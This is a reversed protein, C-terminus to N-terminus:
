KGNETTKNGPDGDAIPRFVRLETEQGFDLCVGFIGWYGVGLELDSLLLAKSRAQRNLATIM